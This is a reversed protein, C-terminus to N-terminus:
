PKTIQHRLIIRRSYIVQLESSVQSVGCVVINPPFKEKPITKRKFVVMPKLKQGDATVALVTIFSKKESGTTVISIEEDGKEAVTRSRPMDFTCPVEDM